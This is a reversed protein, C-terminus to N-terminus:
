IFNQLVVRMAIMTNVFFSPRNVNFPKPFNIGVFEHMYSSHVTIDPVM